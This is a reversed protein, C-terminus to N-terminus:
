VGGRLLLDGDRIRKEILNVIMDGAFKEFKKIDEIQDAGEVINYEYQMIPEEDTGEFRVAGLTFCVGMYPEIMKICPQGEDSEIITYKPENM